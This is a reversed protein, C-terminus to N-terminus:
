LVNPARRKANPTRRLTDNSRSAQRRDTRLGTKLLRPGASRRLTSTETISHSVHFASHWIRFSLRRVGFASRWVGLTKM